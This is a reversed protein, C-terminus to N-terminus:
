RQEREELDDPDYVFSPRGNGNDYASGLGSPRLAGQGSNWSGLRQQEASWSAESRPVNSRVQAQLRGALYDSYGTAQTRTTPDQSVTRSARITM